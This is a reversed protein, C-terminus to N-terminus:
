PAPEPDPQDLFDQLIVAAAAADLRPKRKRWDREGVSLRSSPRSAPSASTRSSCRCRRARGFGPSSPTSTRPRRASPQWRPAAAPGGRHGVARGIGRGTPGGNAPRRRAAAARHHRRVPDGPHPDPREVCSRHAEPRYGPRARSRVPRCGDHGPLRGSHVRDHSAGGGSGRERCNERDRRRAEAGPRGRRLPEPAAGVRGRTWAGADGFTRSALSAWALASAVRSAASCRM